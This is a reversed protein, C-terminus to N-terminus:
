KKNIVIKNHEINYLVSVCDKCLYALIKNGKGGRLEAYENENNLDKHCFACHM